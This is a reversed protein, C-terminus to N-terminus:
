NKNDLVRRLNVAVNNDQRKRIQSKPVIARVPCFPVCIACGDCVRKLISFQMRTEVIAGLPCMYECVGCNVCDNSIIHTEKAVTSNQSVDADVSMESTSEEKLKCDEM